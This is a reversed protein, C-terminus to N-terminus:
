LGSYSHMGDFFLNGAYTFLTAAFGLVLLAASAKGQWERKLRTHLYAAYVLWTALTASQKPDWSWYSGWALASWWSGLLLTLALMPFGVMVAKYSLEDLARVAPLRPSYTGARARLGEQVLFLAAAAFAVANAGYAAVAAGVHLALILPSQLAPAPPLLTAPLTSAYLLLGLAVARCVVAVAGLRRDRALLLAAGLAGWGFAVAFEYQNAFPPRGAAAARVVLSVTVLAFALVALRPAWGGRVPVDARAREPASVALGSVAVPTRPRAQERWAAALWGLLVSALLLPAALLHAALALDALAGPSPRM